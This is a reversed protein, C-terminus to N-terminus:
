LQTVSISDIVYFAAPTGTTGNGNRHGGGYITNLVLNDYSIEGGNKIYVTHTYTNKM